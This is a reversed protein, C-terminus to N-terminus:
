IGLPMAHSSWPKGCRHTKLPRTPLPQGPELLRLDGMVVDDNLMNLLDGDDLSGAQSWARGPYAANLPHNSLTQQQRNHEDSCDPQPELLLGSMTSESQLFTATTPTRNNVIPERASARVTPPRGSPLPRRFSCPTKATRCRQCPGSLARCRDCALRRKEQGNVSYATAQNNM